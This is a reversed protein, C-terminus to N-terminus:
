RFWFNQQDSNQRDRNRKRPAYAYADRARSDGDSNSWSNSWSNSGSDSWPRDWSNGSTEPRVRRAVHLKKKHPEVTAIKAPAPTPAPAAAVPEVPIEAIHPPEPATPAVLIQGGTRAATREFWTPTAQDFKSAYVPHKPRSLVADAVFLLGLLIVGVVTFYKLLPM